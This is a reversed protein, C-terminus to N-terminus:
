SFWDTTLNGFLSAAGQRVVSTADQARKPTSRSPKPNKEKTEKKSASAGPLKQSPVTIPLLPFWANNSPVSLAMLNPNKEQDKTKTYAGLNILQASSPLLCGFLTQSQIISKKINNQLHSYFVDLDFPDIRNRLKDCINQSFTVLQSNERPICLTSLFRVDLLYQLAQIQNLDQSCVREYEKLIVDVHAELFYIHVEKPLTYSLVKSLDKNLKVLINTLPVSPKLPVSIQSKFLKEETQEQIEIDDWRTLNAIMSRPSTDSLLKVLDLTKEVCSNVWNKWLVQSTKSFNDCVKVWDVSTNNFECCKKFNGCLNCTAQLFRACFLSKIILNQNTEKSLSDEIFRCIEISKSTCEIRLHNELNDRDAFKRKFKFDNLLYPASPLDKFEVGYLYQSIDELLNLFTKDVRDCLTIVESSFGMTKMKLVRNDDELKGIDSSDETWVYLRLDIESKGTQLINKVSTEVDKKIEDINNRIIKSLLTVARTTLIPQFFHYWIDFKEPLYLDECIKNWNEPIDIKVAEERIMYLGKITTVLQLSSELGKQISNQTSSIWSKVRASKISKADEKLSLKLKPRFEKIINPIYSILPTVPLELKSITPQSNEGVINDLEEWILGNKSGTNIFCAHLLQITTLLCRLMAAIQMRVNSFQSNILTQLATKRHEIFTNLLQDDTQNELLMLANLNHCTDEATIEVSELKETIKQFIKERLTVLSLKINELMPLRDLYEQKNLSIGMFVHHALLYYQTSNLNNGNDLSIWIQESLFIALRMQILLVRQENKRAETEIELPMLQISSCPTDILSGCTKTIEDINFVINESMTKMSKIADSAALIDKYRDGVMSRLDNRKREIEADLLREIEIIDDISREEFLKDVDLNTLNTKHM